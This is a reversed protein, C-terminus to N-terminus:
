SNALITSSKLYSYKEAKEIAWYYALRLTPLIIVKIKIVKAHVYM